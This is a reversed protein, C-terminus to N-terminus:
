LLDTLQGKVFEAADDTRTVIIVTDDGAVSGVIENFHLKDIM